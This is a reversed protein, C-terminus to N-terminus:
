VTGQLCVGGLGPLVLPGHRAPHNSYPSGAM